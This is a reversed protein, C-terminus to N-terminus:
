PCGAILIADAIRPGHQCDGRVDVSMLVYMALVFAMVAAVAQAFESVQVEGRRPMPRQSCIFDWGGRWGALHECGSVGVALGCLEDIWGYSCEV